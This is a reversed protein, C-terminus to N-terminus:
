TIFPRVLKRLYEVYELRVEFSFGEGFSVITNDPMADLLESDIYDNVIVEGNQMEKTTKGQLKAKLNKRVQLKFGNILNAYTLVETLLCFKAHSPAWSLYAKTRPYSLGCYPATMVSTFENKSISDYDAYALTEFGEEKVRMRLNGKKGDDWFHFIALFTETKEIWRWEVFIPM